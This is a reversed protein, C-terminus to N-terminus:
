GGYTAKAYELADAWEQETSDQRLNCVQVIINPNVNFDQCFKRLLARSPVQEPTPNPVQEAAKEEKKPATAKKTEKKQAQQYEESDVDQTDDLLMLGSVCYKRAYSSTAGTIQADDMGKKDSSERAYATTEIVEDSICDILRATAKVYVRGGVEVIEDSLTLAVCYKNLLPKLAEQIDEINRYKYKGFSNYQNKPAKLEVQINMLKETLHMITEKKEAM